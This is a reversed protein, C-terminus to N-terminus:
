TGTFTNFNGEVPRSRRRGSRGPLQEVEAGGRACVAGELAAMPGGRAARVRAKLVAGLALAARAGPPGAGDFEIWGKDVRSRERAENFVGRTFVRDRHLTAVIV